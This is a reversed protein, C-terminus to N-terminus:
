KKGIRSLISVRITNIEPVKMIVMGVGYVAVGLVIGILSSVLVSYQEASNMWVIIAISMMGASLVSKITGRWLHRGRIGELRNRMLIILAVMELSTAITNALALGGVPIWGLNGFLGPLTFSLVVNLGMTLSGVIVPTKTDHLSYFARSLIEVISHGVLGISYWLLVWGVMETDSSTFNNREFLLSIIPNRLLILGMTAPIAIFLIARLAAALSARLEALKGQAYQSSFTPLAAISIAQAIVRQPMLMLGFAINLASISGELLYSAVFVNVLNNIQVVAVGFLRPAMLIGVERVAPINLGLTFKYESDKLKFVGPLQIMLHLFAGIVYGWALGSIGMSPVLFLQGIIMGTWLMTPALATLFFRQHTNLVGMILGSIGFVIPAILMIRLLDGAM